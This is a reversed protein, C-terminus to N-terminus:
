RAKNTHRGVAVGLAFLALMIAAVVALRKRGVVTLLWTRLPPPPLPANVFKWREPTFQQTATEAFTRVHVDVKPGIVRVELFNDFQASLLRSSLMGRQIERSVSDEMSTQFYRVGDRTLHSFKMPGYDGSFVGDVRARALLPHVDRWWPGDDDQWWLLHHMIVFTHAFGPKPLEQALWAKHTSDLDPPRVMPNKRTDGDQPVWASSLLLLRSDGIAVSQPLIGYRERYVDRTPIDNIDHNGPVRYVPVGVIALASDLYEWQRRVSAYGAVKKETDGWIADGVLVIFTPHLQRVRDVVEALKFNPGSLDGRLHGLVVFSYPAGPALRPAPPPGGVTASRADQASATTQAVLPTAILVLSMAAAIMARIAFRTRQRAGM